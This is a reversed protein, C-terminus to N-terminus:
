DPRLGAILEIEVSVNRPLEAVGVASRAHRGSEGFVEVLLESAADVVKPQLNFQPASAVFGTLKLVREIRDLSGLAQKMGALAQIICLRAAERAREVTVESGVKGTVLMEGQRPLQGSVFVLRDFVTVPVYQFAPVVAEPLVIGLEALRREIM